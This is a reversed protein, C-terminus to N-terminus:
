NNGGPYFNYYYCPRWPCNGYGPGYPFTDPKGPYCGTFGDRCMCWGCHPQEVCTKEDTYGSCLSCDTNSEQTTPMPQTTTTPNATTPEATTTTPPQTSSTPPATTPCTKTISDVRFSLGGEPPSAILQSIDACGLPVKIDALSLIASSQNTCDAASQYFTVNVTACDSSSIAIIYGSFNVQPIPFPACQGDPLPEFMVLPVGVPPVECTKTASLVCVTVNDPALPVLEAAAVAVFLALVFIVVKM